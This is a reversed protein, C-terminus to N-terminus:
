ASETPAGDQWVQPMAGIAQYLAALGDEARVYTAQLESHKLLVPHTGIHAELYERAVYVRDLAEFYHGANLRRLYDEADRQARREARERAEDLAADSVLKALEEHLYSDMLM